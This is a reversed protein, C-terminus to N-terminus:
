TMTQGLWAGEARVVQVPCPCFRSTEQPLCLYVSAKPIAVSTSVVSPGIQVQVSPGSSAKTVPASVWVPGFRAGDTAVARSALAHDTQMLIPTVSCRHGPYVCIKWDHHVFSKTQTYVFLSILSPATKLESFPFLHISFRILVVLDAPRPKSIGPRLETDLAKRNANSRARCEECLCHKNNHRRVYRCVDTGHLWPQM